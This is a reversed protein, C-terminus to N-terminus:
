QKSIQVTRHILIKANPNLHWWGAKAYLKRKQRGNLNKRM